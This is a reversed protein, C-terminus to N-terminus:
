RRSQLGELQQSAPGETPYNALEARAERIAGALDGRQDLVLSLVLHVGKLSPDLAIARSLDAQAATLSGSKFHASGLLLLWHADTPDLEVARSLHQEAPGLDGMLYYTYGLNGQASANGPDERLVELFMPVAIQFEGREGLSSALNNLVMPNHPATRFCHYWLLLDNAWVTQLRVNGVVLAVAILAVLLLQRRPAVGALAARGRLEVIGIAFLMAFGAIPLYLYRDHVFDYSHFWRVWLAPALVVLALYTAFVAERKQSSRRLLAALLVVLMVLILLPLLFNGLTAHQVYQRDYFLSLGFPWMVLRLYFLLLGPLTLLTTRYDTIVLPPVRLAAVRLAGYALAAIVFPAAETIAARFRRGARTTAGPSAAHFIWAYAFVAAPLTVGPEKTLMSLLALLLSAAMWGASRSERWDLYCVLAGLFFVSMLPDCAGSVWAVSEVHVPHVAFLLGAVAAQFTNRLLRLALLFVLMSALGHLLVSTLHWGWPSTGFVAYNLRLWGLFIPRYYDAYYKAAQAWLNATFDHVFYRWSQIFPNALIQARDDYVFGFWLTSVYLLVAIALLGAELRGSKERVPKAAVAPPRPAAQLQQETESAM